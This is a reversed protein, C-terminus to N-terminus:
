KRKDYKLEDGNYPEWVEGGDYRGHRVKKPAKRPIAATSRKLIPVGNVEEVKPKKSM